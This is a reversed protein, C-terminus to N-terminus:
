GNGPPEVSSTEPARQPGYRARFWAAARAGAYSCAAAALLPLWFSMARLTESSVAHRPGDGLGLSHLTAAFESDTYATAIWWGVAMGALAPIRPLAQARLEKLLTRGFHAGERTVRAGLAVVPGRRSVVLAEIRRAAAAADARAARVRNAGPGALEPSEALTAAGLERYLAKRHGREHLIRLRLLLRVLAGRAVVLPRFVAHLERWDRRDELLSAESLEQLGRELEASGQLAERWRRTAPTLASSEVEHGLATLTRQELWRARRAAAHARVADLASSLATWPDFRRPLDRSDPSGM